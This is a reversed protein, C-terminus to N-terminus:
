SYVDVDGAKDIAGKVGGPPSLLQGAAPDDNPEKEAVFPAGGATQDIVVVAAGADDSRRAGQSGGKCGTLALAVALLSTTTRVREPARPRRTAIRSARWSSASPSWRATSAPM